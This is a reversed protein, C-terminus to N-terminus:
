PHDFLYLLSQSEDCPVVCLREYDMRHAAWLWQTLVRDVILIYDERLSSQLQYSWSEGIAQQIM